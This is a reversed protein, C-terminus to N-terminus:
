RGTLGMSKLIRRFLGNVHTSSHAKEACMFRYQIKKEDSDYLVVCKDPTGVTIIYRSDKELKIETDGEIPIYSLRGDKLCNVNPTHNHGIFILWQSFKEFAKECDRTSQVYQYFTDNGIKEYYSHLALFDDKEISFPLDDLFALSDASLGRIEFVWRDHNGVVATIHQEKLFTICEESEREGAIDGLFFIEDLGGLLGFATRLADLNGHADSFFGYRM